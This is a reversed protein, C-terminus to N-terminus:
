HFKLALKRTIQGTSADDSVECSSQTFMNLSNEGPNPISIVDLHGRKVVEAM